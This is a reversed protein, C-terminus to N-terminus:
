NKMFKESAGLDGKSVKIFYSGPALGKLSLKQDGGIISGSLTEKGELNLISYRGGEFESGVEFFLDDVAPIPMVNFGKSKRDRVKSIRDLLALRHEMMVPLVFQNRAPNYIFDAPGNFTQATSDLIQSMNQNLSYIRGSTWSSVYWTNNNFALGDARTFPMSSVDGISNDSLNVYQIKQPTEAMYVVILRNNNADFYIGNPGSNTTTILDTLSNDAIRIRHIKNTQSDTVYLNGAGDTTIDNLFQAGPIPKTLFAEATGLKFGLIRNVDTLYLISDLIIMGKPGTLGSKFVSIPIGEENCAVINQSEVCSVLYRNRAGDWVVSEPRTFPTQSKTCTISSLLLMSFLVLRKM